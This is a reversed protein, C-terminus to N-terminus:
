YANYHVVMDQVVPPSGLVIVRIYYDGENRVSIPLGINVTSDATGNCWYGYETAGIFRPDKTPSVKDAAAILSPHLPQGPIFCLQAAQRTYNHHQEYPITRERLFRDGAQESGTDPPAWRSESERKLRYHDVGWGLMLGITGVALILEGISFRLSRLSYRM